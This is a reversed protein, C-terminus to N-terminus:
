HLVSSIAADSPGASDQSAEACLHEAPDIGRALSVNSRVCRGVWMWRDTRGDEAASHVVVFTVLNLMLNMRYTGAVHGCFGSATTIQKLNIRAEGCM